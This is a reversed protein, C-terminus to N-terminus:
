SLGPMGGQQCGHLERCPPATFAPNQLSRLHHLLELVAPKVRLMKGSLEPAAVTVRGERVTGARFHCCMEGSNILPIKPTKGPFYSQKEELFPRLSSNELGEVGPSTCSQGQGVAPNPIMWQVLEPHPPSLYKDGAHQWWTRM